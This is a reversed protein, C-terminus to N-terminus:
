SKLSEVQALLERLEMNKEQIKKQLLAFKQQKNVQKEWESFELKVDNLYYEFTGSEYLYVAYNNPNHLQGNENKYFINGFDDYTCSLVCPVNKTMDVELNDYVKNLQKTTEYQTTESPKRTQPVSGLIGALANVVEEYALSLDRNNLNM